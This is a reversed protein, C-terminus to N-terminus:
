QNKKIERFEKALSMGIEAKMEAPLDAEAIGVFRCHNGKRKHEWVYVMHEVALIFGVGFALALVIIDWAPISHYSEYDYVFCSYHLIGLWAASHLVTFIILGSKKTSYLYSTVSWFLLILFPRLAYFFYFWNTYYWTRDNPGEPFFQHFFIAIVGILLFIDGVLHRENALHARVAIRGIELGLQARSMMDSVLSQLWSSLQRWLRGSNLKEEWQLLQQKYLQFLIAKM